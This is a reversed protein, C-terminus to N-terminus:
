YKRVGYIIMASYDSGREIFRQLINKYKVGANKPPKVSPMQTIYWRNNINVLSFSIYIKKNNSKDRAGIVAEAFLGNVTLRIDSYDAEYDFSSSIWDAAGGTFRSIIPMDGITNVFDLAKKVDSDPAFYEPLNNLNRNSVDAMLSGLLSLVPLKKYTKFGVAILASLLALLILTTIFSGFGGRKRKRKM